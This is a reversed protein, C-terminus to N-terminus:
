GWIDDGDGVLVVDTGRRCEMSAEDCVSVLM